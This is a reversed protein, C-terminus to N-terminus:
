IWEKPLSLNKKSFTQLSLIPLLKSQGPLYLLFYFFENWAFQDKKMQIETTKVPM